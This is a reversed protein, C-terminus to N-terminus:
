QRHWVIGRPDGAYEVVLENGQCTYRTGSPNMGMLQAPDIPLPVRMWRNGVRADSDVHIRPDMDRFTMTGGATRVRGTGTGTLTARSSVPGSEIVARFARMTQSFLGNAQFNMETEGSM